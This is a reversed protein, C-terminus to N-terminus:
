YKYNKMYFKLKKMGSPRYYGPHSIVAVGKVGLSKEIDSLKLEDVFLMDADLHMVIRGRVHDSVTLLFQYRLLTPFPWKQHATKVVLLSSGLRSILEPDINEGKDTFVIWQTKVSSDNTELYSIVM